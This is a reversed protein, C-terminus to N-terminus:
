KKREEYTMSSAADDVEVLSAGERLTIRNGKIVDKGQIVRPAGTLVITGQSRVSEVKEGYAYRKGGPIKKSTQEVVVDDDFSFYKLKKNYNEILIQGKRSKVDYEGHTVHVLGELDAQGAQFYFTLLNASFDTQPEHLFPRKITGFVNDKHISYQEKFFASIEDSNIDIEDKTKEHFAMVKVREQCYLKESMTWYMGTQCEVNLPTRIVSVDGKFTVIDKFKNFKLRQASFHTEPDTTKKGQFVGKPNIFDFEKFKNKVELYYADIYTKPKLNEVAYFQLIEVRQLDHDIGFSSYPTVKIAIFSAVVGVALFSVLLLLAKHHYSFLLSGGLFSGM